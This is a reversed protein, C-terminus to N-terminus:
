RALRREEVGGREEEKEWEGREERGGGEERAREKEGERGDGRLGDKEWM